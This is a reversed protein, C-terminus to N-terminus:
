EDEAPIFNMGLRLHHRPHELIRRQFAAPSLYTDYYDLVNARMQLIRGTDMTVLSRVTAAIDHGQHAICEIGPRLPPDFYSGSETVPICGVSMAEVLNHALPMDVGPCALFFNCRGLTQLWQDKAVRVGSLVDVFVFSGGLNKSDLQEVNEPTIRVMEDSTLGEFLRALLTTRCSIGYRRPFSDDVYRESNNGAFFLRITRPQRRLADVDRYTDNAYFKPHLMYPFLMDYSAPAHTLRRGMVLSIQRKAAPAKMAAAADHLILDPTLAPHETVLRVLDQELLLRAFKGTALRAILRDNGLLQLRYGAIRLYKALVFLYRGLDRAGLIDDGLVLVAQPQHGEDPGILGRASAVALAEDRARNIDLRQANM